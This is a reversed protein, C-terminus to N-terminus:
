TSEQAEGDDITSPYDIALGDNPAQSQSYAFKKEAYVKQMLNSYVWYNEFVNIVYKQTEQFPITEVFWDPDANPNNKLWKSVSGPGANYAAVALHGQGNFQKLLGSL